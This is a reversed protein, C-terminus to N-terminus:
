GTKLMTLLMLMPTKAVIAHRLQPPMHALCGAAVQHADSGLTLTAEGQLIQITASAPAAHAAMEHGAAFAFLTIKVRDDNQITHSLMGKGPIQIETFLNEKLLYDAM